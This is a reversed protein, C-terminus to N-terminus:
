VLKCNWLIRYAVTVFSNDPFWYFDCYVYM